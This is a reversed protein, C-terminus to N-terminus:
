RWDSGSLTRAAPGALETLAAVVDDRRETPVRDLCSRLLAVRRDDFRHLLTTGSATLTLSIKRRDRTSPARRVWEAGVLRDVLRSTTSVTIGMEEALQALNLRGRHRLATLARLQVPSIGGLEGAARISADMALRALALLADDTATPSM